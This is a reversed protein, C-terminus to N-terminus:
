VRMAFNNKRFTDCLGGVGGNVVYSLMGASVYYPLVEVHVAILRLTSSVGLVSAEEKYPKRILSKYDYGKGHRLFGALFM